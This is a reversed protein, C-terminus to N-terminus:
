CNTESKNETSSWCCLEELETSAYQSLISELLFVDNEPEATDNIAAEKIRSLSKTYQM